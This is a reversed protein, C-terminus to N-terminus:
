GKGTKNRKPRVAYAFHTSFWKWFCPKESTNHFHLDPSPNAFDEKPEKTIPEFCYDCARDGEVWIHGQKQRASTWM